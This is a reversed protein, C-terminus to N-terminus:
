EPRLWVAPPCGVGGEEVADAAHHQDAKAEAQQEQSRFIQEGHVDPVDAGDWRGTRHKRLDRGGDHEGEASLQSGCGHHGRNAKFPWRVAGTERPRWVGKTSLAAASSDEM